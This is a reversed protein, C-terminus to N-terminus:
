RQQDPHHPELGGLGALQRRGFLMLLHLAQEVLRHIGAGAAPRRLAHERGARRRHLAVIVARRHRCVHHMVLGAPLEGANQGLTVFAEHLHEQDRAVVGLIAGEVLLQGGQAAPWHDHVHDLGEIMPGLDMPAREGPQLAAALATDAHHPLPERGVRAKGEGELVPIEEVIRLVPAVGRGARALLAQGLEGIRRAACAQAFVQRDGRGTRQRLDGDDTGLGLAVLLPEVMRQGMGALLHALMRDVDHEVHRDLLVELGLEERGRGVAADLVQLLQDVIGVDQEAHRVAAGM